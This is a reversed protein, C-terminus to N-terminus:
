ETGANINMQGGGSGGLSRLRKSLLGEPAAGASNSRAALLGGYGFDGKSLKDYKTTTATGTMELGPMMTTTISDEPLGNAAACQILSSSPAM